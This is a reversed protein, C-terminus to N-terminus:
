IPIGHPGSSGADSPSLQAVIRELLEDRQRLMDRYERHDSRGIEVRLMALNDAKLDESLEHIMAALERGPLIWDRWVRWWLYALAALALAFALWGM